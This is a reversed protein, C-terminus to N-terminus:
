DGFTGSKIRTEEAVGQPIGILVGLLMMGFWVRLKM